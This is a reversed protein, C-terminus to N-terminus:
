GLPWCLRDRWGRCCLASSLDPSSGWCPVAVLAAITVVPLDTFSFSLHLGASAFFLPVFLGEAASRMGPVIDRRLQHPLGSLAAGFLLAGLSGHTGVAESIGVVVFLGGILLGFSLQPVHLSRQLLVILPPVVYRSLIWTVLTFGVIKALLILVSSWSLETVHERHYIGRAVPRSARCHTRHCFDTHRHNAYIVRTPSFRVSLASAPCRSFEQFRWRRLSIWGWDSTM